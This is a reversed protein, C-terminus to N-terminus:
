PKINKSGGALWLATVILTPLGLGFAAAEINGGAENGIFLVILIIPLWIAFSSVIYFYGVKRQKAFVGIIGIIGIFLLAVSYYVLTMYNTVFGMTALFSSGLTLIVSGIILLIKAKM